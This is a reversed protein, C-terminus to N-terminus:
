SPIDFVSTDVSSKETGGPRDTYQSRTQEANGSRDDQEDWGSMRRCSLGEQRKDAKFVKCTSFFGTNLPRGRGFRARM